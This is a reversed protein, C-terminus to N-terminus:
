AGDKMLEGARSVAEEVSPTQAHWSNEEIAVLEWDGQAGIDM